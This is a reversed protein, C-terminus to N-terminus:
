IRNIYKITAFNDFNILTLSGNDISFRFSSKIDGLINALIMTIFGGHTVMLVNGTQERIRRIVRGAREYADYTSEGGPYPNYIYDEMRAKMEKEYKVMAEEYRMGKILGSDIEVIEKDYNFPIDHYQRIIEFSEYTRVYPSVIARDVIMHHLKDAVKEMQLVGKDNLSVDDTPIIRSNNHHTEGHRLLILDM